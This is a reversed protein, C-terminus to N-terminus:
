FPFNDDEVEETESKENKVLNGVIFRARELLEDFTIIEINNLSKRFLEFSTIKELDNKFENTNGIVVIGKPMVTFVGQDMLKRNEIEEARKQWSKCNIQIQSVGGFLESGLLWAGNRYRVNDKAKPRVALLDSWPKKIEVLVTFKINESETSTLFDGKQKGIGTYNEGGYNPQTSEITLFKYNLGYGFIWDNKEFFKQWYNEDKSKDEINQEFENLCETRSNQIRALALKTALDPKTEVLEQWIEEGYNEQLLKEVYEKRKEPIAIVENATSVVYKNQGYEVGKTSLTYLMTLGDYLKKVQASKLSLKIGDGGKLTALNISEINEWEENRKKRQHVITGSVTEGSLIKTDNIEAIFVRRTNDKEEIIIPENVKQSHSSTSETTFKEM